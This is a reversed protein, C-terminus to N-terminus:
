AKLTPNAADESGSSEITAQVGREMVLFVKVSDVFLGRLLPTLAM